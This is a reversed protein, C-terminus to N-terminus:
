QVTEEALMESSPDTPRRHVFSPLQVLLEPLVSVRYDHQQLKEAFAKVECPDGSRGLTYAFYKSVLADRFAQAETIEQIYEVSTEFNLQEDTEALELSGSADIPVDEKETTRYRGATDYNELGFGAPDIIRHCSYCRAQTSHTIELIDRASTKNPDFDPLEDEPVPEINQPPQPLEVGLLQELVYVGRKVISSSQKGAHVSLFAPHSLIGERESPELSVPELEDTFNEPDLGFIEATAANVLFEQGSFVDFLTADPAALRKVLSRRASEALAQRKRPTLAVEPAKEKTLVKGLKLYDWLFEALTEFFREDGALRQAQELRVQPDQLAGSAALDLLQADPPADWFTYSMLSAVEFAGLRNPAEPTGLETRYLTNASMLLAEMVAEMQQAPTGEVVQLADKLGLIADIENQKLPRRWLAKGVQNVVEDFCQPSPAAVCEAVLPHENVLWSSAAQASDYIGGISVQDVRMVQPDNALGITPNSDKFDPLAADPVALGLAAELTNRYQRATLRRVQRPLKEPPEACKAPMTNPPQWFPEVPESIEGSCAVLGGAVLAWWLKPGIRM